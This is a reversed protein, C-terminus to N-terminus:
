ELHRRWYDILSGMTHEIPLKPKWGTLKRFKASSPKAFSFDSPRYLSKSVKTKIPVNALSILIDLVEKMKVNQNSCINYVDPELNIAMTYAGVVDRVDTYNRVSDLNGHELFERKGLEIEVIQKAFSSEAYMEGRGPGTHNFARSVVIHLGYSEAYLRGMHDMALKSIAYPSRPNPITKETIKSSSVDGYEESTGVLLIKPKIGLNKVAELLNISGVTNTMIARRPDVFSEPVYAQAALHYIYDPRSEDLFTRLQEYDLVNGGQQRDFGFIEARQVNLANELHRGVFGSRGTILVRAM